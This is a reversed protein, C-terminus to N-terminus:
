CDPLGSSKHDAATVETTSERWLQPLRQLLQQLLPQRAAGPLWLAVMTLNLGQHGVESDLRDVKHWHEAGFHVPFFGWGQGNELMNRLTARENAYLTQGSIQLRRATQEEQSRHMVLQPVVSLDLLTLPQQRDQLLRRSAYFDLEVSGLACWEMQTGLARDGSQCLALHASGESLAAEAQLRSGSWASFRIGQESMLTTIAATLGAPIFPDYVMVLEQQQPVRLSHAYSEFARAQRLLLHAQRHLQQGQPTLILKRGERIFLRYGLADELYDLLDRLTTRDKGLFLAAKSLSGQEAICAFAEIQSFSYDLAAM